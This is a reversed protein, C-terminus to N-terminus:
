GDVDTLIRGDAGFLKTSTGTLKWGELHHGIKTPAVACNLDPARANFVVSITECSPENDSDAINVAVVYTSPAWKPYLTINGTLTLSSGASYDTGRGDAGTNWGSSTYGTKLL